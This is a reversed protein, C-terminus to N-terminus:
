VHLAVKASYIAYEVQIFVIDRFRVNLRCDICRRNCRAFGLAISVQLTGVEEINLLERCECERGSIYLRDVAVQRHTSVQRYMSCCAGDNKGDFSRSNGGPIRP